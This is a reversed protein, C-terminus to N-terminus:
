LKSHAERLTQVDDEIRAVASGVVNDVATPLTHARSEKLDEAASEEEDILVKLVEASDTLKSKITMWIRRLKETGSADLNDARLSAALGMERIERLSNQRRDRIDQLMAKLDPDEIIEETKQLALSSDNLAIIVREFASRASLTENEPGIPVPTRHTM